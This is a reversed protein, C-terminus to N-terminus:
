RVALQDNLSEQWAKAEAKTQTVISGQGEFFYHVGIFRKVHGRSEAPLYRQLAWFNRSGSRKIARLVSGEGANYAALVLLWDGFESYLYKLYRAAAVTSSYTQLREDSRHTIKLGWDKATVPMLQWLGRAGAHSRANWQLQSEIIALYKLQLPLDYKEFVKEFSRFYLRSKCEMKKLFEYESRLYGKVYASVHKNLAIRATSKAAILTVESTTDPTRFKMLIPLVSEPVPLSYCVQPHFAAFAVLVVFSNTLLLKRVQKRCLM